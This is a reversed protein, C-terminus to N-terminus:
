VDTKTLSLLLVIQTTMWEIYLVPGALISAWPMKLGRTVFVLSNSIQAINLSRGNLFVEPFSDSSLIPSLYHNM